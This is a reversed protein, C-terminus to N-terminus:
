QAKVIVIHENTGSRYAKRALYVNVWEPTVDFTLKLIFISILLTNEICGVTILSTKENDRYELMWPLLHDIQKSAYCCIIINSFVALICFIEIIFSWSGIHFTKEPIPRRLNKELRFVDSRTEIYIFLVIIAAGLPFVSAFMTIYGFTIVMELYDDFIEHEDRELEELETLVILKQKKEDIAPGDTSSKDLEM